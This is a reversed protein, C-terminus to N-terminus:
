AAPNEPRQSVLHFIRAGRRRQRVLPPPPRSLLKLWDSPPIADAAPTTAQPKGTVGGGVLSFNIYPEHNM